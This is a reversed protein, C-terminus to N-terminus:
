SREVREKIEKGERLLTHLAAKDGSDVVSKYETLNDILIGLEASLYDRNDMFLETWMDENLRAVRTMDKYSGASFGKHGMASPSKIYASSLIHALQSTYAIMKDHESPSTFIVSGFGLGIFFQKLRELMLIDSSVSDPPTLIIPANKFLTSRSHKFGTFQTGAMPHGGIFMFGNEDAISQVADCVVRKIGCCDIVFGGKKFYALHEQIYRVAASPYLAILVVECKGLSANDLVGDVTSFLKAELYTQESLDFGLVTHGFEKASKAFSGGILGLGVIGVTL